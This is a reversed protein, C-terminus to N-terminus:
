GPYNGNMEDFNITLQVSRDVPNRNQAKSSVNVIRLNPSDKLCNWLLHTLYFHGLHNVGMQMEFGDETNRRDPIAMVGANNVLIDIRSHRAKVADVFREISLKSSLDLDFCEVNVNLTKRRIERVANRSKDIDRAGILVTCGRRALEEATSKGIGTNGGTVIAVQGTLDRTVRCMGGKFYNKLLFLAFAVGAGIIYETKM